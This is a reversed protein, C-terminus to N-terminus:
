PSTGGARLDQVSTPCGDFTNDQLLIRQAEKGIRIGTNQKGSATNELKTSRITIDQTSGQIDIGIGPKDTGTDRIICSEIRNRHGGRFEPGERRFLIGLM